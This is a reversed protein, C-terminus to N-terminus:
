AKGNGTGINDKWRRRPRGFKEGGKINVSGLEIRMKKDTEYLIRYM